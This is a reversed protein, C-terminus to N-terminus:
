DPAGRWWRHRWAPAAWLSMLATAQIRGGSTACPRGPHNPLLAIDTGPAVVDPKIRRDDCPGAVALPRWLKPIVRFEEAYAIPKIRFIARGTMVTLIGTAYGGSTRSSRSAGVTLANKCSAQSDITLWDVYGPQSHLRQAAQGENGASIIM